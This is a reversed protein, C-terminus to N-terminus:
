AQFQRLHHDLHKYMLTSWEHPTLVGFFPHPYTTCGGTGASVFRDIFRCLRKREIELDRQDSVLLEKASPANRRLPEDNGLVLPKIFRGIIRGLFARPPKREGLAMEIAMSCHWLAQAPNMRGWQPGCDPRLQSLRQKVEEARAPDFLNRTSM